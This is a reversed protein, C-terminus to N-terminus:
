PFETNIKGDSRLLSELYHVANSDDVSRESHTRVHRLIQEVTYKAM